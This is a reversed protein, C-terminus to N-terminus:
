MPTPTGQASASEDSKRSRPSCLECFHSMGQGLRRYVVTCFKVGGANDKTSFGYSYLIVFCVFLCYSINNAHTSLFVCIQITDNPQLKLPAPALCHTSSCLYSLRSSIDKAMPTYSSASLKQWNKMSLTLWIRSLMVSVNLVDALRM